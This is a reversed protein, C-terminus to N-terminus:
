NQYYVFYCFNTSKVNFRDQIYFNNDVTTRRKGASDVTFNIKKKTKEVSFFLLFDDFLLAAPGDYYKISFLMVFSM